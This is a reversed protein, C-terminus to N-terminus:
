VLETAVSGQNTQLDADVFRGTAVARPETVNTLVREAIGTKAIDSLARTRV